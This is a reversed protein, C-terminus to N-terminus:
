AKSVNENVIPDSSGNKADPLLMTVAAAAEAGSYGLAAAEQLYHQALLELNKRRLNQTTEPSPEDMIYTGRGRQTSILRAEDLIKYARAVTSFNIRLETALERVTPLQDGQQLIGQRVLQEVQQVIQTTIPEGSRFDLRIRGSLGNM